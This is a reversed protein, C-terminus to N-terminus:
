SKEVSLEFLRKREQEELDLKLQDPNNKVKTLEAYITDLAGFMGKNVLDKAQFGTIDGYTIPIRIQTDRTADRVFEPMINLNKPDNGQVIWGGNSDQLGWATGKGKTTVKPIANMFEQEVKVKDYKTVHLVVEKLMKNEIVKEAWLFVEENDPGALKNVIADIRAKIQEGAKKEDAGEMAKFDDILQKATRSDPNNSIKKLQNVINVNDKTSVRKLDSGLFIANSGGTTKISIGVDNVRIDALGQGAGTHSAEIGKQKSLLEAFLVESLTGLSNPDFLHLVSLYESYKKKINGMANRLIKVTDNVKKQTEGKTTQVEEENLRFGFM